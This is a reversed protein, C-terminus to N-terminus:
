EADRRLMNKLLRRVQKGKRHKKEFVRMPGSDMPCCYGSIRKLKSLKRIYKSM